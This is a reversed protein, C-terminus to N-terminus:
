GALGSAGGKMFFVIIGGIVATLVIFVVKTLHANLRDGAARTESRFDALTTQLAEFQADRRALATDHKALRDELSKVREAMMRLAEDTM